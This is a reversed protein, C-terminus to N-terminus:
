KEMGCGDNADAILDHIKDYAEQNGSFHLLTERGTPPTVRTPLPQIAIIAGQRLIEIRQEDVNFNMTYM